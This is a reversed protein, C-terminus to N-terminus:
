NVWYRNLLAPCMTTISLTTMVFLIALGAKLKFGSFDRASLSFCLLIALPIFYRGQIGAVVTAPHNTWAVLLIFFLLFTSLGVTCILWSSEISWLRRRNREVCTALLVAFLIGYAVYVWTGLPADHWGLVGIFMEWYWILLHKNTVTSILVHLLQPIHGIYYITIQATTMQRETLGHVTVLGYLDWAFTLISAVLASFLFSSDRRTLYPVLPLLAVPALNLRTTTISLISLVLAIHMRLDFGLRRDASRMFLSAAYVTTTFAVADQSASSLQFLTMPTIFLTVVPLPIPFIRAAFFLLSLSAILSFTRALYYTHKVSLGAHRGVFMALAQPSYLIPFYYATNPLDSFERRGSWYLEDTSDVDRRLVKEEYHSHIKGFRAIYDLFAVDINGGTLGNQSGLFINGTSFLYARKLHNAEDPSQFPPILASIAEVILFLALLFASVANKSYWFRVCNSRQIDDNVRSSTIASIPIILNTSELHEM